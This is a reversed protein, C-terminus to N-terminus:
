CREIFDCCCLLVLLFYPSVAM